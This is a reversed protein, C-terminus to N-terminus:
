TGNKTRQNLLPFNKLHAALFHALGNNDNFFIHFFPQGGSKQERFHFFTPFLPFGRVRRGNMKSFRLLWVTM